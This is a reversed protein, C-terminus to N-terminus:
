FSVSHPEEFLELLPQRLESQFKVRLLGPQDLEPPICGAVSLQSSLSFRLREVEQAESVVTPSAVLGSGECDPVDCRFRTHCRLQLGDLDFKTATHMIARALCACPETFDDDTIVSVVCHWAVDSLQTGEPLADISQPVLCECTATLACAFPPLCEDRHEFPPYRAWLDQVWIGFCAEM